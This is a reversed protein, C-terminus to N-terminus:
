TRLTAPDWALKLIRSAADDRKHPPTSRAKVNAVSQCVNRTGPSRLPCLFSSLPIPPPRICVICFVVTHAPLIEYSARTSSSRLPVYTDTQTEQDKNDVSPTKEKEKEEHVKPDACADVNRRM